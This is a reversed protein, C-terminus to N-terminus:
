FHYYASLSIGISFDNKAIKLEDSSYYSNIFIPDKNWYVIFPYVLHGGISVKSSLKKRMGLELNACDGMHFFKSNIQKKHISSNSLFTPTYRQNFTNLSVYSLALEFKLNNALKKDIGIGLSFNLDKYSYSKARFLLTTPDDFRFPREIKFNQTFYGIGGKLFIHNLVPKFYNLNLGASVANGTSTNRNGTQYYIASSKNYIVPVSFGIYGKEKKIQSFSSQIVLSFLVLLFLRKM